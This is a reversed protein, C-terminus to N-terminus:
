TQSGSLAGVAGVDLIPAADLDEADLLSAVRELGAVVMAQEWDALKLFRSEFTDQLLDPAADLTERGAETLVVYIRRRDRESKRRNVLGRTQLKDILSTVTAQSLKVAKAVDGATAEGPEDLFQLLLLQSPTLGAVKALKKSQMETVRLIRRMAILAADSRTTM